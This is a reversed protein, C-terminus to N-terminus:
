EKILQILDKLEFIQPLYALTKKETNYPQYIGIKKGNLGEDTILVWKVESDKYCYRHPLYIPDLRQDLEYGQAELMRAEEETSAAKVNKDEDSLFKSFVIIHTYKGPSFKSEFEKWKCVEVKAKDVFLDIAKKIADGVEQFSTVVLVRKENLKNKEIEKLKEKESFSITILDRKNIIFDAGVEKAKKLYESNSSQAIVTIEPRTKKIYRILSYGSDPTEQVGNIKPYSIDTIVLDIDPNTEFSRKAEDLTAAKIIESNGIHGIQACIRDRMEEDDEVILIKKIRKEVKNKMIGEVLEELKTKMETSFNNKKIIENRINDKGM